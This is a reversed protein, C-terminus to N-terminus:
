KPWRRPLNQSLTRGRTRTRLVSPSVTAVYQRVVAGRERTLQQAFAYAQDFEARPDPTLPDEYVAARIHEYQRPAEQELWGSSVLDATDLLRALYANRYKPENWIKSALVNTGLNDSPPMDIRS